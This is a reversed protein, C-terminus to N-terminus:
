CRPASKYHCQRACPYVLWCCQMAQATAGAGAGVQMEVERHSLELATCEQLVALMPEAANGMDRVVQAVKAGLRQLEAM